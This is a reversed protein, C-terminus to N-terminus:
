KKAFQGGADIFNETADIFRRMSESRKAGVRSRVLKLAAKDLQHVIKNRLIRASDRPEKAHFIPALDSMKWEGKLKKLAATVQHIKLTQNPGASLSKAQGLGNWCGQILHALVDCCYYHLLFRGLDSTSETLEARFVQIAELSRSEHMSRIVSVKKAAIRVTGTKPNSTVNKM